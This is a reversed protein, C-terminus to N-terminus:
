NSKVSWIYGVNLQKENHHSSFSWPIMKFARFIKDIDLNLKSKLKAFTLKCINIYM